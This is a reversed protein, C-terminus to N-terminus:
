YSGAGCKLCDYSDMEPLGLLKDIWTRREITRKMLTNCKPCFANAEQHAKFEKGLRNTKM